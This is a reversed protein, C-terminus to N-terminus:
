AVKKWGISLKRIKFTDLTFDFLFRSFFLSTFMSTIVGVSLTVGFGQVPGKGLQSLLISAILTTVNSDLITWFAKGFGAQIAAGASKGAYYEEKIREYIIVNADVAMGITLVLGAISTMTFTLNFASLVAILFVMNFALAINAYFGAGKYYILMFLLVFVGGWLAANLSQRVGDAGITAGIAQASKVELEVPLSGTRLTVALDNAEKLDFGTMRVQGLLIAESIRAGAKIRDDLVVAMTKGVNAQTLKGFLDRGQDDLVFNVTPQNTIDDRSVQASQIFRGDFSNKDDTLLVQWDIRQDIGYLDKRYFGRVVQGEPLVDRPVAPNGMEDLSYNPNTALWSRVRSTAEDDVINFSLSGRGRLFSNVREPDVDGPIEIYIADGGPQRKIQPETVGFRDIRNTLIEVARNVAENRDDDTLNGGRAAALAETDAELVISMGGSLDLGLQLIKGKLEKLAFLEERLRTEYATLLERESRFGALLDRVTWPNPQPLKDLDYNARAVSLLSDLGEPLPSAPDQALLAKLETLKDRAAKQAWDRIEERSGASLAKQSEPTFWYWSVTPYLFWAALGISALILFFRLRKSM